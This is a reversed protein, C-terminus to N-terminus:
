FHYETCTTLGSLDATFAGTSSLSEPTTESGYSTDTGWEFSVDVSTATGLDSLTGNLTASVADVSSEDNSAVTPPTVNGPFDQLEMTQTGKFNFEDVIKIPSLDYIGDADWYYDITYGSMNWVPTTHTVKYCNFTGATVTVEELQDAVTINFPTTSNGQPNSSDIQINQTWTQGPTFPYGHDGVFDREYIDNEAFYIGLATGEQYRQLMDKTDLDRWNKGPQHVVLTMAMSGIMINRNANPVDFTVETEFCPTTQDPAGKTINVNTITETWVEDINIIPLYYAVYEWYNVDYVITDGVNIDTAYASDARPLGPVGPVAPTTFMTGLMAVIVVAALLTRRTKEWQPFSIQTKRM